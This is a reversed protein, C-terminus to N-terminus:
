MWNASTQVRSANPAAPRGSRSSSSRAARVPTITPDPSPPTAVRNSLTSTIPCRPGSRIEGNKMGIPIAFTAAPWTAMAVPAMPGLKAVTDAHALPPWASPSAQSVIRRPSASMIIAPPTSAPMWSAVMPPNADMFASEVRFSSGSAAERGNSRPTVAEDDALAAANEDQLRELM